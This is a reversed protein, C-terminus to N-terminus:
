VSARSQRKQPLRYGAEERPSAQGEFRAGAVLEELKRCESMFWPRAAVGAGPGLGWQLWDSASCGALSSLLGAMM